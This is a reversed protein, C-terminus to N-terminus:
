PLAGGLDDPGTWGHGASKVACWLRGDRGRWFLEIPAAPSGTAAFPNSGTMGLQGLQVPSGWGSKTRQIQWLRGNSGRFFVRETNAAAAPWPTGGVSGGLTHPGRAKGSSAISAMWVQHPATSGRWFVDTEGDPLAVARAPGGLPGMGLKDPTGWSGGLPRTVRWLEHDTGEWYVQVAGAATEVASPAAALSGGLRQPGTWGAGPSYQGHWLHSDASGKWFVDIVGNPQAVAQPATGLVGMMTLRQPQKWGSATLKVQWLYGATGQYFVDIDRGGVSVATPASTLTGGMDTRRWGSRAAFTDRWLHGDSGRYFVDVSGDPMTIAPGSQLTGGSIPLRLNLFDQDIDIQDGGFRQVVNGAFQHLRHRHPWEHRRIVADYTNRAGNWLADYIVDPMASRHGRFHRALDIIGSGSSSYIGSRYGLRHLTKTWSLMFRLARKNQGASYAEMDYYLPTGPGFGLRQAQRVADIAAQQGQRSPESLQHFSAQPGAYMPIFRWGIQAEQRIWRLSLNRQACARDAGGIYIGIARYPSHERWARMYAASPAACSDFGLGRDNAVLSPLAPATVKIFHGAAAPRSVAPSGAAARRSTGPLVSKALLQAGGRGGAPRRRAQLRAPNAPRIVPAPLSASALMRYIVTPDTDFTALLRIGPATATIQNAIPNETSRRPSRRPGPQVLVAETTGLLWSPCNENVGPMGLYLVHEDFRVCRHPHTRDNVVSWSRPIVFSYGRYWVRQRTASIVTSSAAAHGASGTMTLAVLLAGLVVSLARVLSLPPQSGRM